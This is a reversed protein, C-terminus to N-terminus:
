FSSFCTCSHRHRSPLCSQGRRTDAQGSKIINSLALRIENLARANDGSQLVDESDPGPVNVNKQDGARIKFIPNPVSQGSDNYTPASINTSMSSLLSCLVYAVPPGWM